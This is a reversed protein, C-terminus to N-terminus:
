FGWAMESLPNFARQNNKRRWGHNRSCTGEKICRIIYADLWHEVAM